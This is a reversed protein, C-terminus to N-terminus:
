LLQALIPDAVFLGQDSLRLHTPTKELMGLRILDDIARRRPDSPPLLSELWDLPAGQRLRLRLMLQEGLSADPDLREEDQIPPPDPSDLYRALHPVNKWRRGAVHSAASPGVGLWNQNTWYALNHQCPQNPLSWNSIEYHTYGAHALRDIVHAYLDRQQDEDQATFEGRKLRETMATQPEYTLCYCSLHTPALALAATLDADLDSLTQGPIAFILDLNLNSIGADRALAVARTVSAPDHWRELTKLHTTNFSQAGLSLRNVGGQRLVALLEPTLTEPNAEVTFEQLQDLLSLARLETLLTQWLHPQLLTPTGGGVFLTRPQLNFRTKQHHLEAILRQTFRAQRDATDVLSYFDCYHCKHFCFPIHLYLSSVADTLPPDSPSTHQRPTIPPTSKQSPNGAPTKRAPVAM